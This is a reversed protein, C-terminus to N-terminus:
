LLTAESRTRNRIPKLITASIQFFSTFNSQKRKQSEKKLVYPVTVNKLLLGCTEKQQSPREFLERQTVIGAITGGHPRHITVTSLVETRPFCGDNKHVKEGGGRPAAATIADECDGAPISQANGSPILTDQVLHTSLDPPTISTCSSQHCELHAADHESIRVTHPLSAVSDKGETKCQHIYRLYCSLAVTSHLNVKRNNSVMSAWAFWPNSLSQAKGQTRHAPGPKQENVFPHLLTIDM